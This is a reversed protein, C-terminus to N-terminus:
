KMFQVFLSASKQQYQFSMAERIQKVCHNEENKQGIETYERQNEWIKRCYEYEKPVCHQFNQRISNETDMEQEQLLLGTLM